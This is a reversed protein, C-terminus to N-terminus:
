RFTKSNVQLLCPSPLVYTPVLTSMGSRFIELFHLTTNGTNEIYHGTVLEDTQDTVLKSLLSVM